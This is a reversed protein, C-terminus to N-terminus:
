ATVKLCTLSYFSLMGGSVNQPHNQRGIVDFWQLFLWFMDTLSVAILAQKQWAM